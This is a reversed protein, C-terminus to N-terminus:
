KKSGQHYVTSELVTVKTYSVDQSMQEQFLSKLRSTDLSDAIADAKGISNAGGVTDWVLKLGDLNELVSSISSEAASVSDLNKKENNIHDVLYKITEESVEGNQM